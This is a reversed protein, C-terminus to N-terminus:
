NLSWLAGRRWVFTDALILSAMYGVKIIFMSLGGSGCCLASSLLAKLNTKLYLEGRWKEAWSQVAPLVWALLWSVCYRYYGVVKNCLHSAVSSIHLFEFWGWLIVDGTYNKNQLIAQTNALISAETNIHACKQTSIHMHLILALNLLWARIHFYNGFDWSGSPVRAPSIREAM